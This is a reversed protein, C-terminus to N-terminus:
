TSICHAEDVVVLSPRAERVSELTEENALQEPALFVFEVGGQELADLIERRESTRLTSDLQVPKGAAEDELSMVQDRQLAILPSIVLTPGAIQAGCVQYIASKGSGTAMVALTDRGALVAEIAEAQGPRLTDHGLVDRM